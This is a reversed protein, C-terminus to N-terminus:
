DWKAWFDELSADVTPMSSIQSSVESWHFRDECAANLEALNTAMLPKISQIEKLLAILTKNTNSSDSTIVPSLVGNGHENLNDAIIAM